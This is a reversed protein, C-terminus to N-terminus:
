FGTMVVDMSIGVVEVDVAAEAEITIVRGKVKVIV